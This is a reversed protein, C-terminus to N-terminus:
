YTGSACKWLLTGDELAVRYYIERDYPDTSLVFILYGDNPLVRMARKFSLLGRRGPLPRIIYDLQARQAAGMLKADPTFQQMQETRVWESSSFIRGPVATFWLLVIPFALCLLVGILILLWKNRTAAKM